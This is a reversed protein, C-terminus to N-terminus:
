VSPPPCGPVSTVFTVVPLEIPAQPSPCIVNVVVWSRCGEVVYKTTRRPTAPLLRPQFYLAAVGAVTTFGAGVNVWRSTEVFLPDM